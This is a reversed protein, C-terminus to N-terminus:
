NSLFYGNGVTGRNESRSIQTAVSSSYAGAFGFKVDCPASDIRSLNADVDFIHYSSYSFTALLWWRNSANYNAESIIRTTIGYNPEQVRIGANTSIIDLAVAPNTTGIGVNGTNTLRMVDTQTGGNLTSFLLGSGVGQTLYGSIVGGYGTGKEIRICTNSSGTAFAGSYLRLPTDTSSTGATDTFIDLPYSPNTTGIGVNGAGTITMMTTGSTNSVFSHTNAAATFTNATSAIRIGMYGGHHPAITICGTNVTGKTFFILQDGAATLSNFAGLTTNPIFRVSGTASDELILIPNNAVTTAYVHLNSGPSTTGIGVNGGNPNLLLPYNTAWNTDLHNQLWMNGNSINGMDLCVSGTQFRTAVNSTGSGTTNPIGSTAFFTSLPAVPSTTGIGIRGANTMIFTGGAANSFQVVNGTTSSGIVTLVNAAAAPTASFTAAATSTSTTVNLTAVTLSQSMIVNGAYHVSAAFVNSSM